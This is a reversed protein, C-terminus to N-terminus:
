RRIWLVFFVFVSFKYNKLVKDKIRKKRVRVNNETTDLEAAVARVDRKRIFLDIFLKREEENLVAFIKNMVVEPLESEDFQTEAYYYDDSVILDAENLETFIPENRKKKLYNRMKFDATKLLWGSIRDPSLRGSKELFTLFTEQTVDKAAETDRLRARCFAYVDAYHKEVIEDALEREISM